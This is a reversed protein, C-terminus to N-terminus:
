KAIIILIETKKMEHIEEHYKLVDVKHPTEETRIQNVKRVEM